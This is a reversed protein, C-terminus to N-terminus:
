KRKELGEIWNFFCKNHSEVGKPLRLAPMRPQSCGWSDLCKAGISAVSGCFVSHPLNYLKGLTHCPRIFLIRLPFLFTWIQRSNQFPGLYGQDDPIFILTTKVPPLPTPLIILVTNWHYAQFFFSILAQYPYQFATLHSIHNSCLTCQITITYIFYNLCSWGKAKSHWSSSNPNQESLMEYKKTSKDLRLGYWALIGIMERLLFLKVSIIELGRRSM